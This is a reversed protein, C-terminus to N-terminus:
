KSAGLPAYHLRSYVPGAGTLESGMLSVGQVAVTGLDALQIGRLRDALLRVDSPTAQRRLRGLTLHPHYTRDEGEIGLKIVRAEIEAQLRDLENGSQQIGIWIVRPRSLSPFGGLGGVVISTMSFNACVEDLHAAILGATRDDIDGLFRLTLHVGDSDVWRMARGGLQEELRAIEAGLRRLMATPLEVAIFARM